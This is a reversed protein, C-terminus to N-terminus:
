RERLSENMKANWLAREAALNAAATCCCNSEHLHGSSSKAVSGAHPRTYTDAGFTIAEKHAASMNDVTHWLLTDDFLEEELLM